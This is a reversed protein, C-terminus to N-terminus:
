VHIGFMAYYQEGNSFTQSLVHHLCGGLLPRTMYVATFISENQQATLINKKNISITSM